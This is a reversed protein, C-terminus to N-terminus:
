VHKMVIVCEKSKHLYLQGKIIKNMEPFPISFDKENGNVVYDTMESLLQQIAEFKSDINNQQLQYIVQLTELRRENQDRYNSEEMELERKIKKANMKAKYAKTGKDKKGM